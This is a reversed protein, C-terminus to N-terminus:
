LSPRFFVNGQGTLRDSGNSEAIDFSSIQLLFGSSQSEIDTLFAVINDLPGDVELSFDSAGPATASPPMPSGMFSVTATVQHAEAITNVWDGFAILGDQTPLLQDIAAEYATAQPLQERLVSVTDLASTDQNILSRDAQVKKVQSAINGSLFYLAATAGAVSVTIISFSLILKRKFSVM